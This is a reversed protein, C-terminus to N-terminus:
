IRKVLDKPVTKEIDIFEKEMERRMQDFGRFM